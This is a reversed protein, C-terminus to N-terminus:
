DAGALMDFATAVSGIFLPLVPVLRPGSSTCGAGHYRAGDRSAGIGQFLGEAEGTDCAESGCGTVAEGPVGSRPASRGGPSLDIECRAIIKPRSEM